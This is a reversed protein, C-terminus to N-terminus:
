AAPAYEAAGSYICRMGRWVEIVSQETALSLARRIAAHDAIHSSAYIEASRQGPRIIRIEYVDMTGEM